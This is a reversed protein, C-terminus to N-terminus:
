LKQKVNKVLDEMPISVQEKTTMNRLVAAGEELEKEGVILVYGSGLKDARKMQSKLSKGSFEMETRIGELGFACSWDFAQSVSKDGLAAIFIDPKQILD